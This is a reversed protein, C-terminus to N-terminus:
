FICFKIFIGNKCGTRLLAVLLILDLLILNLFTAFFFFAWGAAVLSLLFRFFLVKTGKMYSDFVVEAFDFVIDTFDAAFFNNAL